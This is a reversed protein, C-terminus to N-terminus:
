RHGHRQRLAQQKGTSLIADGLAAPLQHVVVTGAMVQFGQLAGFPLILTPDRLYLGMGHHVGSKM